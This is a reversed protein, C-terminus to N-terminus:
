SSVDDVCNPKLDFKPRINHREDFFDLVGAVSTLSTLLKREPDSMTKQTMQILHHLLCTLSTGTQLALTLWRSVCESPTFPNGVLMAPNQLMGRAMMAGSVGTKKAVREIDDLNKVDGNAVVPIRVSERVIKIAELNVPESRQAPTRGHITLWSLGAKEARRCFEVSKRLDDLLRIKTSISFNEGGSLRNKTQLVMDRVLQPQDLLQAGYGKELAWRQPCGCNLDVGDCYPAVMEAASAFEEADHSAFQVVLPRDNQCTTFEIDRADQSKLFADAVIMPTCAVDCNYERVLLRFPLKSYRVMPACITVPQGRDFLDLLSLSNQGLEQNM